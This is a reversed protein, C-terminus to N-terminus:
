TNTGCIKILAFPIGFKTDISDFYRGRSSFYRKPIKKSSLGIGGIPVVYGM